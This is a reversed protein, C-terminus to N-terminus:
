NPAYTEQDQIISAELNNYNVTSIIKGGWCTWDDADVGAFEVDLVAFETALEVRVGGVAGLVLEISPM